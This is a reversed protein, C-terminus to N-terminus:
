AYQLGLIKWFHRNKETDDSHELCKWFNCEELIRYFIRWYVPQVVLFLLPLLKYHMEIWHWGFTLHISTSHFCPNLCAKPAKIMSPDSILVYSKLTGLSQRFILERSDKLHTKIRSKINLWLITIPQNDQMDSVSACLVQLWLM